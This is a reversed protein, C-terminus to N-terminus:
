SEIDMFDFDQIDENNTTNRDIFPCNEGMPGFESNHDFNSCMVWEVNNLVTLTDKTTTCQSKKIIFIYHIGNIIDLKLVDGTSLVLYMVTGRSIRWDDESALYSSNIDGSIKIGAPAIYETNVTHGKRMLPKITIM